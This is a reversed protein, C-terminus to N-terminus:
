TSDKPKIKMFALINLHAAEFDMASSAYPSLQRGWFVIKFRNLSYYFGLSAKQNKHGNTTNSYVLLKVRHTKLHKKSMLTCFHLCELESADFQATHKSKLQAYNITYKKMTPPIKSKYILVSNDCPESIKLNLRNLYFSYM